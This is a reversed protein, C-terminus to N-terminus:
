TPPTEEPADSATPASVGTTETSVTTTAGSSGRAADPIVQHIETESLDMNKLDRKLRTLGRAVVRAADVFATRAVNEVAEAAKLPVLAAEYPARVGEITACWATRQEASIKPHEAARLRNVLVQMITPQDHVDVKTYTGVGGPYLTNMLVSERPRGITNWVEDRNAKFLVM